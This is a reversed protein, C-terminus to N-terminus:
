RAITDVRPTWATSERAQLNVKAQCQMQQNSNKLRAHVILQNSGPLKEGFKVPIQFSSMPERIIMERLQAPKFVWRGIRADSPKRTPDIVVVDLDAEIDFADLDVARGWEDIASLIFTAGNVKEGDKDVRTLPPHLRITEPARSQNLFDPLKIQGDPAEDVGQGIPPAAKGPIVPDQRLDNLGPPEPEVPLQFDMKPEPLTITEPRTTGSGGLLQKTAAPSDSSPPDTLPQRNSPDNQSGSRNRSSAGDPAPLIQDPTTPVGFDVNPVTLDDVTPEGSPSTSSRGPADAAPDSTPTPTGIDISPLDMAPEDITPEDITPEDEGVNINSDDVSDRSSQADSSRSDDIRRGTSQNASSPVPTPIRSSEVRRQYQEVRDRLVRNEYDAEYLQDELIRIEGAMKQHYVAQQARSSCGLVFM